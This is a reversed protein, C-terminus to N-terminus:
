KAAASPLAGTHQDQLEHEFVKWGMAQESCAHLREPAVIRVPENLQGWFVELPNPSAWWPYRYKAKAKAVDNPSAKRSNHSGREPSSKAELFRSESGNRGFAPRAFTRPDADGSCGGDKHGLWKAVTPIDVGREICRTAFLHRMDHHTLRSLGLIRCARLLARKFKRVGLVPTHMFQNEGREAKLRKLLKRMEPIM